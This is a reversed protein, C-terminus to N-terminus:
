KGGIEFAYKYRFSFQIRYDNYTWGDTFNERRGYQFEVGYMVKDVPHHQLNALAYQGDAFTEPLAATGDYDLSILSFGFSSTWHENWYTDYFLVTGWVPITKASLEGPANEVVAVDATADNMYNQIGEGYLVSAKLTSDNPGLKINTSLNLGWGTGSGSLDPATESFDDWELRRLIGAIEVYGWDDTRRYEASLDPFQLHPKLDAAEIIDNHRGRDGSGGPRELAVTVHHKGTLPMWRVQVNRFFAMGSPGWYELSNPFVDIDMFPSWYQGAGFKRWQAYAHRLRITTQGADDGVGFLEWEFITKINGKGTPLWSKVGFRTQRVSFYTAGDKGFENEFAPLKSPRVVDYWDPDNRGFDYGADTQVFGYIEILQKESDKDTELTAKGPETPGETTVQDELKTASQSWAPVAFGCMVFAVLLTGVIKIRM